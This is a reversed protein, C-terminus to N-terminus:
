RPNQVRLVYVPRPQRLLARDVGQDETGIAVGMVNPMVLSSSIGWHILERMQSGIQTWELYKAIGSFEMTIKPQDLFCVVVGGIVPMEDLLLELRM